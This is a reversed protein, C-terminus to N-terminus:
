NSKNLHEGLRDAIKGAVDTWTNERTQWYREVSAYLPTPEAAMGWYWLPTVQLALLCPKGLAGAFHATVNSTTVILDLSDVLAALGEFDDFRDIEPDTYIEAGTAAMAAATELETEGYQLNVFLADRDALIPEWQDLPMSKWPGIKTRSSRWSIGVVPRGAAAIQLRANIGAARDPDPSLHRDLPYQGPYRIRSQLTFSAAPTQFDFDPEDNRAEGSPVFRVGPLSRTFLSVLRADCEFVCDGGAILAPLSGLYIIHDGVGQEAWVLLRKGSLSEGNWGPEPRQRYDSYFTEAQWRSEYDTEAAAFEGKAFLCLCRKYLTDAHGPRLALAQDYLQIAADIRGLSQVVSALSVTLRADDPALALARRMAAEADTFQGLDRLTVGLNGHAEALGADLAIARRFCGAAAALDGTMQLAAGHNVHGHPNDPDLHTKDTLYRLAQDADGLEIAAMGALQLADLHSADAGLIQESLKLAEAPRGENHHALAEAFLAGPEKKALGKKQRREARRRESRNMAM